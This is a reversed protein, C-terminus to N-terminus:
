PPTNFAIKPFPLHFVSTPLLFPYRFRDMKYAEQLM